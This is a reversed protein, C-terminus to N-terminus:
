EFFYASFLLVAVSNWDFEAATMEVSKQL